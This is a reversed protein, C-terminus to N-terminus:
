LKKMDRISRTKGPFPENFDKIIQAKEDELTKQVQNSCVKHLGDGVGKASEGSELTAEASMEHKIWMDAGDPRKVLMTRSYTRTIKSIHM